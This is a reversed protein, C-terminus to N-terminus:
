WTGSAHGAGAHVVLGAPKNVAILDDDSYLIELPIDEAVAHLPTLEAPDVTISEGGHLNASAKPVIGNVLVRGSKIWGQVRARSYEPLRQQLFHDLRKGADQPTTTFHL